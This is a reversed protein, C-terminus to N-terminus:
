IQSQQRKQEILVTAAVPHKSAYIRKKSPIAQLFHYWPRKPANPFTTLNDPATPHIKM